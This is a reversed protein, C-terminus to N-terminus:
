RDTWRETRSSKTDAGYNEYRRLYKFSVQYLHLGNNSPTCPVLVSVRGVIKASHHGKSIKRRAPEIVTIGDGGRVWAGVGGGGGLVCM